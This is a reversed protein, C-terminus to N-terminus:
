RDLPAEHVQQEQDPLQCCIVVAIDGMTSQEWFRESPEEDLGLGLDMCELQGVHLVVRGGQERHRHKGFLGYEDMASRSHIYMGCLADLLMGVVQVLDCGAVACLAGIEGSEGLPHVETCTSQFPLRIQEGVASFRTWQGLGWVLSQMCPFRLSHLWMYWVGFLFFGNLPCLLLSILSLFVQFCGLFYHRFGLIQLYKFTHAPFSFSAGKARRM